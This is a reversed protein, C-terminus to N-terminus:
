RRRIWDRWAERRRERELRQSTLIDRRVVGTVYVGAALLATVFLLTIPEM